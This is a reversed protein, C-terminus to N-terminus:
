AEKRSERYAVVDELGDKTVEVKMNYSMKKDKYFIHKIATIMYKGSLFKDDASDSKKDKDTTESSPLIVTVTQGVRFLSNGNVSLIISIGNYIGM